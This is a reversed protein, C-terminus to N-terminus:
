CKLVGKTNVTRGNWENTAATPRKVLWMFSPSRLVRRAPTKATLIMKPRSRAFLMELVRKVGKKDRFASFEEGKVKRCIIIEHNTLTVIVFRGVAIKVRCKPECSLDSRCNIVKIRLQGHGTHLM